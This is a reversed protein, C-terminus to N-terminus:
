QTNKKKQRYLNKKERWLARVAEVGLSELERSVRRRYNLRMREKQKEHREIYIDLTPIM